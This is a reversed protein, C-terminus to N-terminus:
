TVLLYVTAEVMPDSFAGRLYHTEHTLGQPVSDEKVQFAKDRNQLYRGTVQPDHHTFESIQGHRSLGSVVVVGSACRDPPLSVGTGQILLAGPGAILPRSDFGPTLLDFYSTYPDPNNSRVLVSGDTGLDVVTPYPMQYAPDILLQTGGDPTWRFAEDKFQPPFSGSSYRASGFVDGQGDLRASASSVIPYGAPAAPIPIPSVQPDPDPSLLDFYSTYPDPNNSRVLLSGDTGLDVLTSYPMQHSPDILLQTGGDPTWRFAEDKFQPPFGGNTYTGTGFVDGHGDLRASASSVNPYGAPAPPLPVPSVQPEPDPSLLDFYSTYPDPNNSRVLLSGDTGLDV